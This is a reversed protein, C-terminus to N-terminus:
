AARELEPKALNRLIRRLLLFGGGGLIIFIGSGVAWGVLGAYLPPPAKLELAIPTTGTSLPGTRSFLRLRWTGESPLTVSGTFTGDPTRLLPVNATQGSPGVAAVTLADVRQGDRNSVSIAIPLNPDYTPLQTAQAGDGHVGISLPQTGADQAAGAPIAAALWLGLLAVLLKM